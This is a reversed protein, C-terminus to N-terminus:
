VTSLSRKLIDSALKKVPKRQRRATDRLAFFSEEDVEIEFHRGKLEISADAPELFEECDSLSHNDWFEAAEEESVFEVPLPDIEKDTNGMTNGRRLTWIAPQSQRPWVEDEGGAIVEGGNVEKGVLRHIQLLGLPLRDDKACPPRVLSNSERELLLSPARRPPPPLVAVRGTV